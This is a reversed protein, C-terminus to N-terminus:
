RISNSRMGTGRRRGIRWRSTSWRRLMWCLTSAKRERTTRRWTWREDPLFFIVLFLWRSLYVQIKNEVGNDHNYWQPLPGDRPIHHSWVQSVFLQSMQHLCWRVLLQVGCLLLHHRHWHRYLNACHLLCSISPPQQHLLHRQGYGEVGGGDQAVHAVQPEAPPHSPVLGSPDRFCYVAPRPDMPLDQLWTQIFISGFSWRLNGLVGSGIGGGQLAKLGVWVLVEVWPWSKQLLFFHHTTGLYPKSIVEQQVSEESLADVIIKHYIPVWVNIVRM